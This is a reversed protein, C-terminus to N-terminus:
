FNAKEVKMTRKSVFNPLYGEGNQHRKALKQIVSHRMVFSKITTNFNIGTLLFENNLLDSNNIKSNNFLDSSSHSDRNAM